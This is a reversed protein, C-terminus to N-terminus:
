KNPIVPVNNPGGMSSVGRELEKEEQLSGCTVYLGMVM